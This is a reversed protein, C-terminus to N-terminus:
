NLATMTREIAHAEEILLVLSAKKNEVSAQSQINLQEIDQLRESVLADVRDEWYSKVQAHMLETMAATQQDFSRLWQTTAREANRKIQIQREQLLRKQADRHKQEAQAKQRVLEAQLRAQEKKNQELAWGTLQRENAIDENRALARRLSQGQFDLEALAAQQAAVAQPDVVEIDVPGGFMSGIREGWYGASLMELGSLKQMVPPPVGRVKQQGLQVGKVINLGTKVTKAVKGANVAINAMKAGKGVLSAVKAGATAPSVFMLGIDAVEGLMRGIMAGNGDSVRQLVTPLPQAAITNKQQMLERLAQESETMDSVSMSELKQEAASFESQYAELEHKLQTLKGMDLFDEESVTEPAPLHLNFEAIKTEPLNLVGYSTSRSSFIKAVQQTASSLLNTGQLGFKEWESEHLLQNLHESLQRALKQREDQVSVVSQQDVRDRDHQQENYLGSKFETLVQKRQMLEQHLAQIAAESSVQFSRQNEANKGLANQLIPKLEAQFRRMRINDLDDKARQVFDIVDDRGLGERHCPTLRTRLGTATEIQAAWQELSPTKEGAAEASEVLDWRTIMVKVRKGAQHILKLMEVDTQSPGRPDILYLVVDSQRIQVLTYDRHSASVSGLGPLDIISVGQLWPIPTNLVACAAGEPAQTTAHAFGLDDLALTSGDHGILTMEREVGYEIFTPLATTETLATQLLQEQLLMNLLSSKGVSFAGVLILRLPTEIQLTAAALAEVPEHWIPPLQRLIEALFSHAIPM